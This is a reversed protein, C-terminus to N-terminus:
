KAPKPPPVNTSFMDRHLKWKGDERRWIVIYKGHDISKGAKDMLEYEGVETASSGRGFVEVTTFKVGGVGNSLAGQWFKQIAANGKVNDSGAPMVMADSTYLAAAAAADGKAFAASLASNSATIGDRTADAAATQSLILMSAALCLSFFRTMPSPGKPNIIIQM